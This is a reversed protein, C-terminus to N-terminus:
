PTTTRAGSRRYSRRYEVGCFIIVTPLRVQVPLDRGGQHLLSVVQERLRGSNFRDIHQRVFSVGVSEPTLTREPRIAIHAIRFAGAPLIDAPRMKSKM